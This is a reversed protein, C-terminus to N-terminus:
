LAWKWTPRQQEMTNCEKLPTINIVEKDDVVTIFAYDDRYGPRSSEVLSMRRGCFCRSRTTSENRRRLRAFGAQEQVSFVNLLWHAAFSFRGNMHSSYVM